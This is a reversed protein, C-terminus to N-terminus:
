CHGQTFMNRAIGPLIGIYMPWITLATCMYWVPTERLRECVRPTTLHPEHNGVHHYAINGTNKAPLLFHHLGIEWTLDEEVPLQNTAPSLLSDREATVFAIYYTECKSQYKSRSSLRYIRYVLRGMYFPM